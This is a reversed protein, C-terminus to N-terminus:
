SFSGPPMIGEKTPPDVVVCNAYEIALELKDNVKLITLTNKGTGESSIKYKKLFRPSSPSLELDESSFFVRGHDLPDPISM